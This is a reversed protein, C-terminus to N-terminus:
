ASVMGHSVPLAGLAGEYMPSSRVGFGSVAVGVSKAAVGIGLLAKSEVRNAPSVVIQISYRSAVVFDFVGSRRPKRSFNWFPVAVMPLLDRMADAGPGKTNCVAVQITM